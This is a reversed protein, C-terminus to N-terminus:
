WALFVTGITPSEAPPGDNGGYNENRVAMTTEAGVGAAMARVGLIIWLWKNSKKKAPKPEEKVLLHKEMNSKVVSEYKLIQTKATFIKKAAFATWPFYLGLLSLVM